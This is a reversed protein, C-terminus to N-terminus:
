DEARVNVAQDGKSTERVEFEVRKGILSEGFALRRADTCHFFIDRQGDDRSIFGFGRGFNCSKIEGAHTVIETM